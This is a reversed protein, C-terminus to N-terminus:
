KKSQWLRYLKTQCHSAEKRMKEWNFLSLVRLIALSQLSRNILFYLQFVTSIPPASDVQPCSIVLWVLKCSLNQNKNKFDCTRPLISHTQWQYQKLFHSRFLFLEASIGPLIHFSMQLVKIKLTLKLDIRAIPRFSFIKLVVCFNSSNRSEIAWFLDFSSVWICSLFQWLMYSILSLFFYPFAFCPFAFRHIQLDSCTLWDPRSKILGPKRKM